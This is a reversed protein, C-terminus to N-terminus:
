PTLHASLEQAIEDFGGDLIAEMHHWSKKLRHDTIRDQPFNYTRIKESREGGRIQQKRVAGLTEQDELRKREFIRMRLIELANERNQVQTRATQSTVVIGTPKHTIRVASERRNVLQGGPGSARMTEIVLDGPEIVVERPKPKPMVVVTATSTHIRGSKETEPIRQVRHVGSEYYLVSAGRGRVEFIALKTGGLESNNEELPNLKWGKRETYRLYMRVLESAFLAAEEGGAGPRIEMLISESEMKPAGSHAHARTLRAEEADINRIEEEALTRLAEDTAHKLIDATEARRKAFDASKKRFELEESIEKFRQGLERLREPNSMLEPDSLKQEIESKEEELPNVEDM